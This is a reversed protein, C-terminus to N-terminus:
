FYSLNLISVTVLGHILITSAVFLIFYGACLL